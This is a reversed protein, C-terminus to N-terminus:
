QQQNLGATSPGASDCHGPGAAAAVCAGAAVYPRQEPPPTAFCARPPPQRHAACSGELIHASPWNLGDAFQSVALATLFRLPSRFGQYCSCFTLSAAPSTLGRGHTRATVPRAAALAGVGAVVDCVGSGPQVWSFHRRQSARARRSLHFALHRPEAGTPRCHPSPAPPRM